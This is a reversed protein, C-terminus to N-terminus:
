PPAALIECSSIEAESPCTWSPSCPRGLYMDGVQGGCLYVPDTYQTGSARSIYGAANGSLGTVEGCLHSVDGTLDSVVGYIRSADGFISTVDGGINSVDGIINTVDGGINTVDGRINSVDGVIDTVDGRINMTSGGTLGSADGCLFHGPRFGDEDLVYMEAPSKAISHLNRGSCVDAADGDMSDSVMSAGDMSVVGDMSDGGMSACTSSISDCYRCVSDDLVGGRASDGDLCANFYSLLTSDCLGHNEFCDTVTTRLSYDSSSCVSLQEAALVYDDKDAAGMAIADAVTIESKLMYEESVTCKMTTADLVTGTGCADAEVTSKLVYDEEVKSKLVCEDGEEGPQVLFPKVGLLAWVGRLKRQWRGAKRYLKETKRASRKADVGLIVSFLVVAVIL